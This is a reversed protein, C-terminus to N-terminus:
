PLPCVNGYPCQGSPCVGCTASVPVASVPVSGFGVSTGSASVTDKFESCAPNATPNSDIVTPYYSGSFTASAGPALTTASLNQVTSKDDSVQIGTVSFVNTAPNTVTGDYSVKLVVKGDKAEESVSCTKTLQLAGSVSAAPCIAQGSSRTTPATDGVFTGSATITDSAIPTSSSTVITGSYCATKSPELTAFTTGLSQSTDSCNVFNLTTAAPADELSINTVNGLGTNKVEGSFTYQLQAGGSVFQTDTCKKTVKYDCVPFNGIVFNKLEASTSTSSRSMAMFTSFCSSGALSSIDIGGEFFQGPKLNGSWPPTDPANILSGNTIACAANGSICFLGPAANSVNLKQGLQGGSWVYVAITGVAGGNNYNVAVLTDGDVHKVAPPNVSTCNGNADASGGAFTGNAKACVPNKFFWFGTAVTGNTTARDAGFYIIRNFTYPDTYAAAYAHQIDAKSPSPGASWHWTGIDGLDKSGSFVKTPANDTIFASVGSNHLGNSQYIDNWDDPAAITSAPVTNGDLEFLGAAIVDAAQSPTAVMLALAGGALLARLSKVGFETDVKNEGV